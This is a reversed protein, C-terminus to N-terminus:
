GGGTVSTAVDYIVAATHENAEVSVAVVVNKDVSLHTGFARQRGRFVVGTSGEGIKIACSPKVRLVIAQWRNGARCFGDEKEVVEAFATISTSRRFTIVLIM